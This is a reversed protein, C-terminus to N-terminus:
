EKIAEELRPYKFQFGAKLLKEPVARQSSLFTAEGMEGFILQVAFKPMTLFTPRNLEQGLIKTFEANKVPNPSVVNVAGQISAHNIVFEVVRVVDTLSIWSMYQEGSGLKGGLGLRFPLRMQSLAGGKKSLIVGFRLLVVRVGKDVAPRTAEEWKRCVDSLFDNGNFSAENLYEAGRDGYLGVASANILIRPPSKLKGIAECLTKTADVRSELIRRKKLKSWRGAISEGCLNIFVDFGELMSPDVKNEEPNWLLINPGMTNSGGLSRILKVVHHGKLELDSVLATGVFGSSGAILIKM